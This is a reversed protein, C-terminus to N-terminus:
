WDDLTKKGITLLEHLELDIEEFPVNKKLSKQKWFRQTGRDETACIWFTFALAKEDELYIQILKHVNGAQWRLSREPWNRYNRGQDLGNARAFIALREDIALLPAELRQWDVPSGYFGNPM